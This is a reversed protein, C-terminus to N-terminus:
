LVNDQLPKLIEQSYFSNFAEFVPCSFIVALKKTNQSKNNNHKHTHKHTHARARTHVGANQILGSRRKEDSKQKSSPLLHM